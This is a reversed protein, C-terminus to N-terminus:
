TNVFERVVSRSSIATVTGLIGAGNLECPLFDPTTAVCHEFKIWTGLGRSIRLLLGTSTIRERIPAMM